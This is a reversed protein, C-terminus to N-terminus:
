LHYCICHSSLSQILPNFRRFLITLVISNMPTGRRGVITALLGPFSQGKKMRGRVEM